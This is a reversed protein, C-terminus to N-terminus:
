TLKFFPRNAYLIALRVFGQGDSLCSQCLIKFHSVWTRALASMLSVIVAGQVKM